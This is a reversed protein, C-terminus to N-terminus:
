KYLSHRVLSGRNYQRLNCYAIAACELAFLVIVAYCVILYSLLLCRYTFAFLLACLQGYHLVVVPNCLLLFLLQRYSVDGVSDQLLLLYCPRLKISLPQLLEVYLLSRYLSGGVAYAVILYVLPIINM